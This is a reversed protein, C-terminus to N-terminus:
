FQNRLKIKYLNKNVKIHPLVIFILILWFDGMGFSIDVSNKIHANLSLMHMIESFCENPPNYNLSTEVSYTFLYTLVYKSSNYLFSCIVKTHVNIILNGQMKNM